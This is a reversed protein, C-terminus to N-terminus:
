LIVENGASTPPARPLGRSNPVHDAGPPERGLVATAGAGDSVGMSTRLSFYLPCAGSSRRHRIRLKGSWAAWPSACAGTDYSVTDLGGEVLTGMKRAPALIGELTSLL